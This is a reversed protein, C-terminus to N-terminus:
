CTKCCGLIHVYVCIVHVCVCVYMVSTYMCTVSTYVCVYTVSTYMWVDGVYMCVYACVSTLSNSLSPFLFHLLSSSLQLPIPPSIIIPPPSPSVSLCFFVFQYIHFLLIFVNFLVFQYIHFLMFLM